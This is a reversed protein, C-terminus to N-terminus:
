RHRGRPPPRRPDTPSPACGDLTAPTTVACAAAELEPRHPRHLLRADVAIPGGPATFRVRLSQAEGPPVTHDFAAGVVKHPRHLREPTGDAQLPLSRLQPGDVVFVGADTGLTVEVWTQEVDGLGGPFRHGAGVNRVALELVVEAGAAPAFGDGLDVWAGDVRASTASLTAARQLTARAAPLAGTLATIATRGGVMTHGHCSVCGEGGSPEYRQTNPGAWGSGQWTGWDDFGPTVQAVGMEPVLAGRHCGQCVEGGRLRETLMRARHGAVDTRPDPLARVDVRLSGNGDPSADAAAHGVLCTVGVDTLPDGPAAGLGGTVLLAPDHCGACHQVAVEGEDQRVALFASLYWPNDLSAHAHASAAHEAAAAPHCAACDDARVMREPAGDLRFNSPAFPGDPSPTMAPAALALTMWLWM